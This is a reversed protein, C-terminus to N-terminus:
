DEMYEPQMKDDADIGKESFRANIQHYYGIAFRGQDEIGLTRPFSEGFGDMIERINREIAVAAAKQKNEGKRLKALHNNTNRLLLPFVSAPTASAAGYYRDRITANLSKGLAAKQANELESFLRGLRYGSNRSEANLSMPIEEGIGKVGLRLDRALVAKCLAVRLGSIDGDARFRMVTNALLIRPYRRGTLIARTMEGALQPSIDEAKAKGDRSPATAYLLRWIAPASKWPLPELRLDQYHDALRKAFVKLSGTEWFRVSLRSANPAFGLVYIRTEPDLNVDLAQMARGRAVADLISRLKAAEQTDDAPPELMCAFTFEAAVEKEPKDAIAWFVVTADGIKLRQRNREDRRLLHNLVTTYAFAASESIPANGGQEKGYSAFSDLNFSVISAGSSQAGDVGKIAPHLRALASQQGTVLCPGLAADGDALLREWVTKAATSAHLYSRKGDLRFVFNADRMDPSFPPLKFAEPNWSSLFKLFAQLGEDNENKLLDKHWKIFATHERATREVAKVSIGLAYSSKDWLFNPKVGSTRKAPQPVTMSIPAPRNGSTDRLDQADVLKGDASIILAYSIKEESYGFPPVEGRDSLRSYYDNLASLIM